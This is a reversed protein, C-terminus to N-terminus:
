LIARVHLFISEYPNLKPKVSFVTCM